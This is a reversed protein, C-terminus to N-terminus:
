PVRLVFFFCVFNQVEKEFKVSQKSSSVSNKMWIGGKSFIYTYSTCVEFDATIKKGKTERPCFLKYM